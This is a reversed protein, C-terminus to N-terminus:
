GDRNSKFRSRPIWGPVRDRYLTWQEGFETALLDEERRARVILGLSTLAYFVMSWTRFILLAGFAALMVGLYMPHRVIAYPGDDVLRHGEYLEATVSSSVGFMPGLARFGWVYLIVGPFYILSGAILLILGLSEPLDVPVPEWLLIGVAIYGVALAFTVPWGLLRPSAGSRRGHSAARARWAGILALGIVTLGMVLAFRTIWTEIM